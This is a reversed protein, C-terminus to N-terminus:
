VKESAPIFSASSVYWEAVCLCVCVCVCVSVCVRVSVCCMVSTCVSNICHADDQAVVSTVDTSTVRLQLDSHFNQWEGPKLSYEKGEFKIKVQDEKGIQYSLFQVVSVRWQYGKPPPMKNILSAIFNESKDAVLKKMNAFNLEGEEHSKHSKAYEEECNEWEEETVTDDLATAGLLDVM